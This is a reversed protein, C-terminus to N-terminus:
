DSRSQESSPLRLTIGPTAPDDSRAVTGGLPWVARYAMAIRMATASEAALPADTAATLAAGLRDGSVTFTFSNADALGAVRIESSAANKTAAHLILFLARRLREEDTIFPGADPRELINITTGRAAAEPAIAAIAEDFLAAPDVAGPDVHLEDPDTVTAEGLGAIIALLQDASSRIRVLADLIRPDADGLIGEAILDHYGIIAAVPTRMEHALLSFFEESAM